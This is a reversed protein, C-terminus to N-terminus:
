SELVEVADGKRFSGSKTVKLTIGGNGRMANYGGHGLNEEMRSCPHCEGTYEFEATGIRVSKGKLALLNVGKIVINRRLLKPDVSPKGMFSAVSDIHEQQIFTIQRKGPKSRHDGELGTKEDVIAEDLEIPEAGRKPRATILVVEGHQAFQKTLYSINKKSFPLM